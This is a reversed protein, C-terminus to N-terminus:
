VHVVYKQDDNIPAYIGAHAYQLTLKKRYFGIMDGPLIQKDAALRLFQEKGFGKSNAYMKMGDPKHHKLFKLFTRLTRDKALQKDLREESLQGADKAITELGEVLLNMALTYKKSNAQDKKIALCADNLGEITGDRMQACSM